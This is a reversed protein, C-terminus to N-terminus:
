NRDSGTKTNEKLTLGCYPCNKADNIIVESDIVKCYHYAM